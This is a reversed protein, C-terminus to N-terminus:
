EKEKKYAKKMLSEAAKRIAKSRRSREEESIIPRHIRIIFGDDEITKTHTYEM